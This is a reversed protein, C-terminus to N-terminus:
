LRRCTTITPRGRAARREGQYSYSQYDITAVVGNPVDRTNASVEQTTVFYKVAEKISCQLRRTESDYAVHNM